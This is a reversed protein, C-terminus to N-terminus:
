VYLASGLSGQQSTDAFSASSIYSKLAARLMQAVSTASSNSQSNSSTTTSTTESNLADLFSQIVDDGQDTANASSTGTRGAEFEAKSITGDGNTDLQSFTDDTSPPPGMPGQAEQSGKPGAEFESQSISGNGDNDLESLLKQASPGGQPGNAVMQTLENEDIEGDGNTDNQSFLQQIFDASSTNSSMGNMGPPSGEQSASKLGAEFESQSVSGDGDTDSNSLIKDVTPGGKPGNAVMTALEDKDLKGDGSTDIKSFMNKRMEAMQLQNLSSSGSISGIM